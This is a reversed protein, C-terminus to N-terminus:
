KLLFSIYSVTTFQGVGGGTGSVGDEQTLPLNHGTSPAIVLKFLPLLQHFVHLLLPHMVLSYSVCSVASSIDSFQVIHFM